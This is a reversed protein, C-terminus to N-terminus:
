AKKILTIGRFAEDEKQLEFVLGSVLSMSMLKIRIRPTAERKVNSLEKFAPTCYTLQSEIRIGRCTSAM